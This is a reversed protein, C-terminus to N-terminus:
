QHLLNRRHARVLRAPGTRHRPLLAVHQWQLLDPRQRMHREQLRLRRERLNAEPQVPRVIRWVRQERLRAGRLKPHVTAAAAKATAPRKAQGRRDRGRCPGTRVSGNARRCAAHPIDATLRRCCREEVRQRLPQRGHHCSRALTM